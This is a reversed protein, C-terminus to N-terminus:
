MIIAEDFNGKDALALGLIIKFRKGKNYYAGFENPNIKLANDYM